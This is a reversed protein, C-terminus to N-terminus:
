ERSDIPQLNVAQFNPPASTTEYCSSVRRLFAIACQCTQLWLAYQNLGITSGKLDSLVSKRFLIITHVTTRLYPVDHQLLIDTNWRHSDM